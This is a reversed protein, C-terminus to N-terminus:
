GSRDSRSCSAAAAALQALHRAPCPCPCPCPGAAPVPPLQSLIESESFVTKNAYLHTYFARVRKRVNYPFSRM